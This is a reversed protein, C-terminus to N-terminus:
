GSWVYFRPNKALNSGFRPELYAGKAGILYNHESRITVHDTRLNHLKIREKVEQTWIQLGVLIWQIATLFCWIEVSIRPNKIAVSRTNTRDFIQFRSTFSRMFSCLKCLSWTMIRDSSLYKIPPLSTTNFHRTKPAIVPGFAVTRTKTHYSGNCRNPEPDSGSWSGVRSNPVM